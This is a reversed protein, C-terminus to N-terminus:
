SSLSESMTRMSSSANMSATGQESQLPCRSLRSDSATVISPRLMPASTSMGIV